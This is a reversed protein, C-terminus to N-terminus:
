AKGARRRRTRAAKQKRERRRLIKAREAEASQIEEEIEDEDETVVPVTRKMGRVGWFFVLFLLVAALILTIFYAPIVLWAISESFWGTTMGLNLLMVLSLLLYEIGILISTQKYWPRDSGEQRAKQWRRYGVALTCIGLIMFFLSIGLVIRWDFRPM